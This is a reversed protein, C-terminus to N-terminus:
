HQSPLAEMQRGAFPVFYLEDGVRAVRKWYCFVFQSFRLAEEAERNVEKATVGRWVVILKM